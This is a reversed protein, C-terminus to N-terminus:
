KKSKAGAGGSVMVSEASRTTGSVTYRVKADRGALSPLTTADITRASEQVRADSVLVFREKGESTKLELTRTKADYSVITGTSALSRAQRDPGQAPAGLAAAAGATVVASLSVARLVAGM